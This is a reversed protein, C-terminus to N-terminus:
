SVNSNRYNFLSIHKGMKIKMIGKIEFLIAMKVEGPCHWGYIISLSVYIDVQMLYPQMAIVLVSHSILCLLGTKILVRISRSPMSRQGDLMAVVRYSMETDLRSNRELEVKGVPGGQIEEVLPYWDSSYSDRGEITYLVRAELHFPDMRRTQVAKYSDASHNGYASTPSDFIDEINTPPPCTQLVDIASDGLRWRLQIKDKALIVYRLDEVCIICIPM